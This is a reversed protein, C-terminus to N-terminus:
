CILIMIWAWIVTTSFVQLLFGWKLMDTVSLLGTAYAIANPPTSVPLMFAMSASISAAVVSPTPDLAMDVAVSFVVPVVINAAATNSMLTTLIGASVISVLVLGSQGTIGTANILQRGAEQGLGTKMVLSGLSLGGGFLILTGFDIDGADKWSMVPKYPAISAPMVFLLVMGIISVVSEPLHEALSTADNAPAVLGPLLWGLLMVAFVLIVSKEQTSLASLAHDTSVHPLKEHQRGAWLYAVFCLGLCLVLSLPLFLLMWEGFTIKQYGMKVLYAQGVLNPPTGIPTAIGGLSASYAIGLVLAKRLKANASKFLTLGLPIVIAASATNSMWMSLFACVVLPLALMVRQNRNGKMVTYAIRVDLGSKQIAVGLAFAGLFLFIIPDAYPSLVEGVNAVGLLVCLASALLMTVPLPVPEVIFFVLCLAIIGLLRTQSQDLGWPIILAVMFAFLGAVIKILLRVPLYHM